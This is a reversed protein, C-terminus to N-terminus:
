QGDSEIYPIDQYKINNSAWQQMAESVIKQSLHQAFNTIANAKSPENVEEKVCVPFPKKSLFKDDLIFSEKSANQKESELIKPILFTQKSKMCGM